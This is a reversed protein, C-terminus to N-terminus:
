DSIKAVTYKGHSLALFRGDKRAFAQECYTLIKSKSLRRQVIKGKQSLNVATHIEKWIKLPSNPPNSCGPAPYIEFAVRRSRFKPQEKLSDSPTLKKDVVLQKM